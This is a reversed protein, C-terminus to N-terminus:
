SQIAKQPEYLHTGESIKIPYSVLDISFKRKFKSKLSEILTKTASKKVIALMCGGFGGGMMRAGLVEKFELAHFVLFDLEPCSVEYM